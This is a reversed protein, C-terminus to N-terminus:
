KKEIVIRLTVERVQEFIEGEIEMIKDFIPELAEKFQPNIEMEVDIQDTLNKLVERLKNYQRIDLLM